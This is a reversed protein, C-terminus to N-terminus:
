GSPRRPLKVRGAPTAPTVTSALLWSRAAPAPMPRALVAAGAPLPRRPAGTALPVKAAPLKAPLAAAQPATAQRLLSQLTPLTTNRIHAPLGDGRREASAAVLGLTKLFQPLSVPEYDRDREREVEIRDPAEPRDPAEDHDPREMAEAREPGDLREPAEPRERELPQAVSRAPSFHKMRIGMRVAFFCQRFEASAALFLRVDDGAAAAIKSAALGLKHACATMAELMELDPASRLSAAEPM